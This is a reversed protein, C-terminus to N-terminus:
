RERQRCRRDNDAPQGEARNTEDGQEDDREADYM